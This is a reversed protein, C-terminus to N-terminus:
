IWATTRGPCFSQAKTRLKLMGAQRGGPLLKEILMPQPCVSNLDEVQM